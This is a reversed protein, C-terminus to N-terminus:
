PNAAHTLVTHVLRPPPLPYRELLRNFLAWVLGRQRNRRSLWKRWCRAVPCRLGDSDGLANLLAAVARDDKILGLAKAAERRVGKEPDGLAAILAPVASRDAATGLAKAAHQRVWAAPWRLDGIYGEAASVLAAITAMWAWVLLTIGIMKRIPLVRPHDHRKRGM